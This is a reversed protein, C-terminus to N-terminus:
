IINAFSIFYIFLIDNKKLSNQKLTLALILTLASLLGLGLGSGSGLVANNLCLYVGVGAGAGVGVGRKVSVRALHSEFVAYDVDGQALLCAWLESPVLRIKWWSFIKLLCKTWLSSIFWSLLQIKVKRLPKVMQEHAPRSKLLNPFHRRGASNGGHLWAKAACSNLLNHHERRATWVSSFKCNVM